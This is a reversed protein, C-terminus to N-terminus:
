CYVVMSRFESIDDVRRASSSSYKSLEIGETSCFESLEDFNTGLQDLCALVDHVSLRTRGALEAYQGCASTALM